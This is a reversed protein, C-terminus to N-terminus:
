SGDVFTINKEIFKLVLTTLGFMTLISVYFLFLWFPKITLYGICKNTFFCHHDMLFVCKNCLRCHHVQATKLADCKRCALQEIHEQEIHELDDVSPVIENDQKGMFGPDNQAMQHCWIIM